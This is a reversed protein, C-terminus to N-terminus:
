GNVRDGRTTPVSFVLFHVDTGSQNRFQHRVQPPIELGEGKHLVVEGDEFAMTGEGDLIYFFQRAKDHRHIDETGGAPVREQIISMEDRKLLHWGDCHKGWVYHEASETSVVM